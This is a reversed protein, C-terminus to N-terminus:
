FHYKMKDLNTVTKPVFCRRTLCAIFGFLQHLSTLIYLQHARGQALSFRERSAIKSFSAKPRPAEAGEQREEEAMRNEQSFVELKM